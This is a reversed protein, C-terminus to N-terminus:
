LAATATGLATTVAAWLDRVAQGATLLAAVAVVSILGILLAYEVMDQGDEDRAIRNFFEVFQIM